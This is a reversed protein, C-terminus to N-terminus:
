QGVPRTLYFFDGVGASVERANADEGMVVTIGSDGTRGKVRWNIGQKYM